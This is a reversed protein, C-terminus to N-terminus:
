ITDNIQDTLGNPLLFYQMLRMAMSTLFHWPIVIHGAYNENLFTISRLKLHIITENQRDIQGIKM